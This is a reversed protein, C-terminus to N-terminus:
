GSDTLELAIVGGGPFGAEAVHQQRADDSAGAIVSSGATAAHM